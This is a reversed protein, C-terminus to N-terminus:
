ALHCLIVQSLAIKNIFTLVLQEKRILLINLVILILFLILWVSCIDM